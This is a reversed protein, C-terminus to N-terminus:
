ALRTALMRSGDVEVVWTADNSQFQIFPRNKRIGGSVELIGSNIFERTRGTNALWLWWPFCRGASWDEEYDYSSDLSCLFERIRKWANMKADYSCIANADALSLLVLQPAGAPKRIMGPPLAYLAAGVGSVQAVDQPFLCNDPLYMQPIMDDARTKGAHFRLVAGNDFYAFFDVRCCGPRNADPIRKIQEATINTIVRNALQRPITQVDLVSRQSISDVLVPLSNYIAYALNQAARRNSAKANQPVPQNDAISDLFHAFSIAVAVADQAAGGPLVLQASAPQSAGGPAVASRVPRHPPGHIPRVNAQPPVVWPRPAVAPQSPAQQPWPAVAPQAPVALGPVPGLVPEPMAWYWQEAADSFGYFKQFEAWTYTVDESEWNGDVCDWKPIIRREAM